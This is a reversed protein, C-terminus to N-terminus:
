KKGPPKGLHNDLVQNAITDATKNLERDIHNIQFNDFNKILDMVQKYIDKLGENKVKYQGSVQRVVLQSDMFVALSKAGLALSRELGVKLSQYEAQNNTAQGLFEGGQCVPQKLHNLIVYGSSALGPNGRSAGDCYLSLGPSQTPTPTDAQNFLDPRSSVLGSVAEKFSALAELNVIIRVLLKNQSILLQDQGQQGALDVVLNIFDRVAGPQGFHHSFHYNNKASNFQWIPTKSIKNKM